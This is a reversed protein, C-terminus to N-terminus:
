GRRCLWAIAPVCLAAAALQAAVFAPVDWPAIGSFSTTLGRAITVAPNAFSTSATFWYASVIFLAVMAAVAEPRYRVALFISAVLGFTAVGESLWQAGGARIHDGLQFVPESFMAHALLTGGIGGAIQAAGYALGSALGIDGALFFALTVAPNFHAGSVPGLANILVFLIAGTAITNALLAMAIDGDALRAGMIGSGVVGAVLVGTGVAEAALKQRLAPRNAGTM